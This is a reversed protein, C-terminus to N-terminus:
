FKMNNASSYKDKLGKKFYGGHSTVAYFQPYFGDYAYYPNTYIAPFPVYPKEYVGPHYFIFKNDKPVKPKPEDQAVKPEKVEKSKVPKLRDEDGYPWIVPHWPNAEYESNDNAHVKLSM